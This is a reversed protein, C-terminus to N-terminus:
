NKLFFFFFFFNIKNKYQFHLIMRSQSRDSHFADFTGRAFVVQFTNITFAHTLLPTIVLLELEPKREM